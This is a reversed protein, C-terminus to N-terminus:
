KGGVFSLNGCFEEYIPSSGHCLGSREPLGWGYSKPDIQLCITFARRHYRGKLHIICPIGTEM